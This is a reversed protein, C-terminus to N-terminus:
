PSIVFEDAGIDIDSGDGRAEGTGDFPRADGEFDIPLDLEAGGADICPSTDALHYDGSAPAVLLPDDAINGTGGGPWDQIASFDPTSSNGIQLTNEWIICNCVIGNCNFVGTGSNGHITNNRVLGDCGSLGDGVGGGITSAVGGAIVNNQIVGDCDWINESENGFLFNGEITGGCAYLGGGRTLPGSVRNGVIFNGRITGACEALAAGVASTNVGLSRAVNSQIDNGEILGHCAHLGAGAARGAAASPTTFSVTNGSIRNGRIVGNVRSVGGGSPVLDDPNGAAINGTIRNGILAAQTDNGEVGGGHAALGNTVTFGTLLCAGTETGQFTVVSNLARGNIITADVVMPDAPDTSTVVIDVGLFRINENYTGPSVLVTDGENADNIAAQVTPYNSPVRLIRPPPPLGICTVTDGIDIGGDHNRDALLLTFGTLPARGLIHDVILACDIRVLEQAGIDIDSGDGRVEATADFPRPDRDFDEVLGASAGGADICPSNDALDFNGNAADVFLPDAAFNGTGGGPWSQICSFEPTSSNAIQTGQNEWLICNRIDGGCNAVGAGDFAANGRITNNLIEGDCDNLGGGTLAGNTLILNNAVREGAGHIGGGSGAFNLSIENRHILADCDALGGGFSVAISGTQTSVSNGRIVNGAIEGDCDAAGGGTATTFQDVTALVENSIITNGVLLGDCDHLGGGSPERGLLSNSSILNEEITGQCDALGGGRVVDSLPEGVSNNEIVNRAVLGGCGFLGGGEPSRGMAQNNSITNFEIRGDCNSIGGGRVPLPFTLVATALNGTIVNDTITAQTGNGLIGGGEVARGNTITFGTLTFLLSEAGNFTVAPGLGAGDIVTTAVTGPDAPNISTLAFDTGPLVLNEAYVGPFVVVQDGPAAANVATQITPFDFPVLIQAAPLSIAAFAILGLACLRRFPNGV